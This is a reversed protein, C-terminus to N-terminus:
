EASTWIEIWEDLIKEFAVKNFIMQEKQKRNKWIEWHRAETNEDNEILLLFIKKDKHGRLYLDVKGFAGVVNIGTPELIVSPGGGLSLEMIQTELLFEECEASQLPHYEVSIYGNTIYENFWKEIQKYLGELEQIWIQKNSELQQMRERNEQTLKELKEEFNM